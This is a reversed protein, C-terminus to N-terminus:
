VKDAFKDGFARSAAEELGDPWTKATLRRFM